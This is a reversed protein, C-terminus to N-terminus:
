GTDGTEGLVDEIEDDAEKMIETYKGPNEFMM